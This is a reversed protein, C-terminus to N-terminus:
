YITYEIVEHKDSTATFSDLCDLIKQEESESYTKLYPEFVESICSKFRYQPAPINKRAQQVNQHKLKKPKEVAKNENAYKAAIEKASGSEIQVHGGEGISINRQEEKFDQNKEFKNQLDVEFDITAQLVEILKSVDIKQHSSQLLEDIHLKTQRCFEYAIMHEMYWHEIFTNKYKEDFEKLTRKLWSFRRRTNEFDSEPKGPEFIEIYPRLIYNSFWMKVDSVAAPGLADVAYCAQYLEDDNKIGKEINEFEELIQM